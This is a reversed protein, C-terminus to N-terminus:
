FTDIMSYPNDGMYDCGLGETPMEMEYSAGVPQLAAVSSVPSGPTQYSASLAPITNYSSSLESKGELWPATRPLEPLGLAQVNCALLDYVGTAAVAAGLSRVMRNRVFVALLMGIGIHYVGMFKDPLQIASPVFRKVVPMASFGAVIGIGAGAANMIFRRDFRPNMRIISRARRRRASRKRSPNVRISRKKPEWRSRRSRRWGRKTKYVVPRHKKATKRPKYSVKRAKKVTTKRKRKRWGKLAAARRQAKTMSSGGKRTKTTSKRSSTTRPDVKSVAMRYAMGRSPNKRKKKKLAMSGGKRKTPGKIPQPNLIPIVPM